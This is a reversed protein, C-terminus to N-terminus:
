VRLAIHLSYFIHKWKRMKEFFNVFWAMGSAAEAAFLYIIRGLAGM